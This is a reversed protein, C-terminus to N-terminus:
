GPDDDTLGGWGCRPQPWDTGSRPCSRPRLATPKTEMESRAGLTPTPRWGQAPPRLGKPITRACMGANRSPSPTLSSYIISYKKTAEKNREHSDNVWNEDRM